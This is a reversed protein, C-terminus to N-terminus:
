CNPVQIVDNVSPLLPANRQPPASSANRTAISPLQQPQKDQKPKTSTAASIESPQSSPQPSPQSKTQFTQSQPPSAFQEPTEQYRQGDEPQQELLALLHARACQQLAKTKPIIDYGGELVSVLRGDCYKNAIQM